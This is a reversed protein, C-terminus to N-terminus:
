SSRLRRYMDTSTLDQISGVCLEVLCRIHCEQCCLFQCLTVSRVPVAYLLLYRGPTRTHQAFPPLGDSRCRVPLNAVVIAHPLGCEIAAYRSVKQSAEEIM